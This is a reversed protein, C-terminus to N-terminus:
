ERSTINLLSCSKCTGAECYIVSGLGATKRQCGSPTTDECKCQTSSALTFNESVLEKPIPLAAENGFISVGVYQYGEPAPENKLLFIPLQEGYIKKYFQELANKVIPEKFLWENANGLLDSVLSTNDELKEKSTSIFTIGRNVDFVGSVEISQNNTNTVKRECVSCGESMTCLYKKDVLTPNCGSGTTCTCTVKVTDASNALLNSNFSNSNVFESRLYHYGKPLVLMTESESIKYAVSGSPFPIGMIGSKEISKLVNEDTVEKLQLVDLKSQKNCSIITAIFLIAFFIVLKKM